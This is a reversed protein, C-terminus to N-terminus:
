CLQQHKFERTLAESHFRDGRLSMMIILERREVGHQGDQVSSDLPETPVSACVPPCAFVVAPNIGIGCSACDVGNIEDGECDRDKGCLACWVSMGFGVTWLEDCHRM